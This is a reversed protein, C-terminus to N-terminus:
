PKDVESRLCAKKPIGAAEPAARCRRRATSKFQCPLAAARGTKRGRSTFGQAIQKKKAAAYREGGVKHFRYLTVMEDLGFVKGPPGGVQHVDRIRIIQLAGPALVHARPEPPQWGLDTGLRM